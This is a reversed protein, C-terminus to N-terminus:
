DTTEAPDGYEDLVQEVLDTTAGAVEDGIAELSADPRSEAVDLIRRHIVARPSGRGSDTRSM